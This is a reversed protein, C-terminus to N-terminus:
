TQANALTQKLALHFSTQEQRFIEHMLDKDFNQDRTIESKPRHGITIPTSFLDAVLGALDKMSISQTGVINVIAPVHTRSVLDVVMCSLDNVALFSRRETGDGDLELVSKESASRLMAPIVKQSSSDGPGFVTGIRLICLTHGSRQAWELLIKESMLKSEGYLTTPNPATSESVSGSAPYVDVTSFYLIRM